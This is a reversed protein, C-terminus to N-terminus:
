PWVFGAAAPPPLHPGDPQERAHRWALDLDRARTYCPQWWRREGLQEYPLPTRGARPGPPIGAPQPPQLPQSLPPTRPRAASEEETLLHEGPRCLRPSIVARVRALAAPRWRTDWEGALPPDASPAQAALYILRLWSLAALAPRHLAWCDPLEDRTVESWAVLVQEIWGTLLDWETAAQVATLSPWDVPVVREADLRGTIRRLQHDHDAVDRRLQEVRPAVDEAIGTALTVHQRTTHHLRVQLDHVERRLLAADTFPPPNYPGGDPAQGPGPDGRGALGAGAPEARARGSGQEPASQGPEPQDDPPTPTDM